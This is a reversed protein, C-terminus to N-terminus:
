ALGALHGTEDILEVRWDQGPALRILSHISALEIVPEARALRQTILRIVGRHAVVIANGGAEHAIDLHALMREVGREVRATFDARSEGGPYAYAPEFRDRNWRAFDAPYRDRIEEATLGEFAGFDVEAFEEILLPALGTIIMAGECARSLPSAFVQDFHIGGRDGIRQHLATRVARMQDRGLSSLEVDTRGHYRIRSNGVTEGHRVIVLRNSGAPATM